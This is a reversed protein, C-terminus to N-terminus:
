RNRVQTFHLRQHRFRARKVIEFVCIRFRARKVIQAEKTNAHECLANMNLCIQKHMLIRMQTLIWIEGAGRLCEYEYM